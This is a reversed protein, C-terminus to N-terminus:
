PASWSHRPNTALAAYRAAPDIVDVVAFGRAQSVVCDREPNEHDVAILFHSGRARIAEYEAHTPAVREECGPDGCECRLAAPVQGAPLTANAREAAENAVRAASTRAAEQDTTSARESTM